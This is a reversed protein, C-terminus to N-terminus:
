SPSARRMRRLEAAVQDVQAQRAQKQSEHQDRWAVLEDLRADLALVAEVLDSLKPLKPLEIM